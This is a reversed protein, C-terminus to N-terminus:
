ALGAAVSEPTPEAEAFLPRSELGMEGVAGAVVSLTRGSFDCREHCLFATVPAIFRPHLPRMDDIRERPWHQSAVELVMRTAAAPALANVRIGHPEGELALSNTFALVAGKSASYGCLQEVGFSAGSTTNVVRGYGAEILHPWAARAVLMTGLANIEMVRALEAPTVDIFDKQLVIGANNVVIDLRGFADLAAAVMSEAGEATAVNDANAQAEGGASRIEEVVAEAVDISTGQGETDVGRDNVVVRAGRAALLQAQERGIGRGAGTVLAVRGDFRLPDSDEKMTQDEYERSIRFADPANRV